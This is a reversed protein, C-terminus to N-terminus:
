EGGQEIRKKMRELRGLRSKEDETLSGQTQKKQLGAIEADLKEVLQHRRAEHEAALRKDLDGQMAQRRAERQEPTAKPRPAIARNRLKDLQEPTLSPRIEALARARILTKEAEARAIVVAKDRILDVNLHEDLMADDLEKQLQRLQTDLEEMRARSGELAERYRLRQDANLVSEPWFFPRASAVESEPTSGTETSPLAAGQSAVISMGLVGVSISGVYKLSDLLRNTNM